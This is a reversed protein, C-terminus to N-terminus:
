ALEDPSLPTAYGGLSVIRSASDGAAKMLQEAVVGEPSICGVVEALFLWVEPKNEDYWQQTSVAELGAKKLAKCFGSLRIDQDTELVFLCRDNGTEEQPLPSIALAEIGRGPGTQTAFPLRAIVKPAKPNTNVLHPWWPTADDPQPIALVGVTADGKGVADIVRRASAHATLPTQSGFHARAMDTMGCADGEPSLVAVSFPGQLATFTGMIERWLRVITEKPLDGTHRAVLRRIVDAERAPRLNNGDNGAGPSGGAKKAKRVGAVVSSRKMLLDHIADDIDDIERRLAQLATESPQKDNTASM